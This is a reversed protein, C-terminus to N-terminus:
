NITDALILLFTVNLLKNMKKGSLLCYHARIVQELTGESPPMKFVKRVAPSIHLLSTVNILADLLITHISRTAMFSQATCMGIKDIYTPPPLSYM